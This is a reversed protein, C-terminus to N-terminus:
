RQLLVKMLGSDEGVQFHANYLGASQAVGKENTGDWTLQVRGVDVYGASLERITRGNLDKIEVTVECPDFVELDFTIVEQFPNPWARYDPKFGSLEDADAASLGLVDEPTPVVPEDTVLEQEEGAQIIVQVSQSCGLGSFATVSYVGPALDSVIATKAGTNWIYSVEPPFAKATGDAAGARTEDTVVVTVETSPFVTVDVWATDTHKNGADLLMYAFRDKGHFGKEPIYLAEGKNLYTRGHAPEGVWRPVIPYSSRSTDNKLIRISVSGGECTEGFDDVAVPPLQREEKWGSEQAFVAVFLGLVFLSFLLGTKLSM